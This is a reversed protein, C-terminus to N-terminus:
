SPFGRASAASLGDPSLACDPISSTEHAGQWPGAVLLGDCETVERRLSVLRSCRGCKGVVLAGVNFRVRRAGCWSCPTNGDPRACARIRSALDGSPDLQACRRHFERVLRATIMPDTDIIAALQVLPLPLALYRILRRQRHAIRNRMFPTGARRNFQVGCTGCQFRPLGRVIGKRRVGTAGCAPCAPVPEHRASHIDDFDALLTASLVRDELVNGGDPALRLARIATARGGLRVQAEYRGQPDFELLWRRLVRVTDGAAADSIGLLAAAEVCSLPRPLLATLAGIHLRLPRHSLTTESLRSFHRGCADCMFLPLPGTRLRAYGKKAIQRGNCRPCPPVPECDPSMLRAAVGRLFAVMEAADGSHADDVVPSRIPQPQSTMSWFQGNLHFRPTVRATNFTPLGTSRLAAM